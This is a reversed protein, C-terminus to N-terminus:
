CYEFKRKKCPTNRKISAAIASSTAGIDKGAELVSNYVKNTTICIVKRKNKVIHIERPLTIDGLFEYFYIYGKYTGSTQIARNISSLSKKKLLERNCQHVSVYEKVFKGTLAEYVFLHRGEKKDTHGRNNSILRTKMIESIRKYVGNERKTEVIRRITEATMTFNADGGKTQNVLTGTGLDRRGYKLILEKEKSLIFNRDASQYLINIIYPTKNVINKWFITRKHSSLARSFKYNKHLSGVGVYFIENKDVRTHTYLYYKHFLDKPLVNIIIKQIM